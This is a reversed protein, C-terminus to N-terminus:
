LLEQTCPDVLKKTKQGERELFSQFCHCKEFGKFVSESALLGADQWTEQRIGPLGASSWLCVLRAGKFSFLVTAM